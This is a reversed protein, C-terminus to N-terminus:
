QVRLNDINEKDLSVPMFSLGLAKLAKYIEDVRYGYVVNPGIVSVPVSRAGLAWLGLQGQFSKDVDYERYQIKSNKLSRRLQECYNCKETTYIVVERSNEGPRHVAAAYRDLFLLVLALVLATGLLIRRIRIIRTDM